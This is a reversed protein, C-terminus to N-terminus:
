RSSGWIPAQALTCCTLAMYAGKGHDTPPLADVEVGSLSGARSEHSSETMVNSERSSRLNSLAFDDHEVVTTATPTASM